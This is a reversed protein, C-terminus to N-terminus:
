TFRAQIVCIGEIGEGQMIVGLSGLGELDLTQVNAMEDAGSGM